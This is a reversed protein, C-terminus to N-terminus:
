KEKHLHKRVSGLKKKLSGTRRRLTPEEGDGWMADNGVANSLSDGAYKPKTMEYAENGTSSRHGKLDGGHGKLAKEISYSPEGKGKIDSDLYQVGPWRKYAGGEPNGSIMMNDGQEYEYVHGNRDAEGPAYAAVGDLPRHSRVSDIIKERPTARLTEQNSHDLAKLPSAKESINRATLAADYPGEHHWPYGGVISLRDITDPLVRHSKRLHPSRNASAADKRIQDLPRSSNDGPFRAGLSNGRRRSSSDSPWEESFAEHRHSSHPRHHKPSVSQPPSPYPNRESTGSVEATSTYINKSQRFPNQSLSSPSRSSTLNSTASEPRLHTGPGTEESPQPESLPDLLYSRAWNKSTQSEM